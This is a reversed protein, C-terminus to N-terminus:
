KAKRELESKHAAESHAQGFYCYTCKSDYNNYNSHIPTNDKKSERFVVYAQGDAGIYQESPTTM